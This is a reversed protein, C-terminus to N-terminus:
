FDRGSDLFAKASQHYEYIIESYSSDSYGLSDGGQALFKYGSYSGNQHDFMYHVRNDKTALRSNILSMDGTAEDFVAALAYLLTSKGCGNPGTFIHIEAKEADAEASKIPPFDFHTNEFVGM